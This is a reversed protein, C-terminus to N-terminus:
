LKNGWARSGGVVAKALAMLKSSIKLRAQGAVEANIEFRVKSEEMIFHIVGGQQGFKDMDGVTLVNAGRLSEFIQVLRKQESSSIFLIHCSRLNQGWKLRKVVLPRGNVSKGNIIQDLANGFPDEGLVGVVFPAESEGFAEPLWEVFKAFNYLFAAKVQYENPAQARTLTGPLPSAVAFLAFALLLNTLKGRSRRLLPPPQLRLQPRNWPHSGTFQPPADLIEM